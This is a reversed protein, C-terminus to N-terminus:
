RDVLGDQQEYTGPQKPKSEERRRRLTELANDLAKVREDRTPATQDTLEVGLPFGEFGSSTSSGLLDIATIYYELFRGTTSWDPVVARYHHEGQQQMPLMSFDAAGPARYYVKAERVGAPSTIVAEIVLPYGRPQPQRFREHEITVLARRKEQALGVVNLVTLMVSSWVGMVLARRRWM